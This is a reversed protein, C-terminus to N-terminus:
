ELTLGPACHRLPSVQLQGGIEELMNDSIARNINRRHLDMSCFMVWAWIMIRWDIKRVLKTEERATWRCDPDFRHRNEYRAQEYIQRWRDAVVPDSFIHDSSSGYDENASDETSGRDADVPASVDVNKSDYSGEKSKGAIQM